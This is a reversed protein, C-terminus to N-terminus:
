LPDTEIVVDEKRDVEECEPEQEPEPDATPISAVYKLAHGQMIYYQLDVVPAGDKKQRTKLLDHFEQGILGVDNAPYPGITRPILRDGVQDLYTGLYYVDPEYKAQM